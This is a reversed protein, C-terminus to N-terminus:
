MPKPYMRDPHLRGRIKNLASVLCSCRLHSLHDLGSHTQFSVRNLGLHTQFSVRQRDVQLLLGAITAKGLDTFSEGLAAQKSLAGEDPTTAAQREIMLETQRQIVVQTLREILETQREIM